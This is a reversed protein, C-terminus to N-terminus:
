SVLGHEGIQEMVGLRLVGELRDVGSLGEQIADGGNGVQRYGQAGVAWGAVSDAFTLAMAIPSRRGAVPVLSVLGLPIPITRKATSSVGSQKWCFDGLRRYLAAGIM